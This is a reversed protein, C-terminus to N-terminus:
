AAVELLSLQMPRQHQEACQRAILDRQFRVLAYYSEVRHKGNELADQLRNGITIIQIGGDVISM